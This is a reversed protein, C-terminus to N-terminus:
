KEKEEGGDQMHRLQICLLWSRAYVYREFLDIMAHRTTGAPVPVNRSALVAM